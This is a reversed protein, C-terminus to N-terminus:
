ISISPNTHIIPKTAMSLMHADHQNSITIERRCRTESDSRLYLQTRRSRHACQLPMSIFQLEPYAIVIRLVVSVVCECLIRICSNAVLLEREIGVIHIGELGDTFM